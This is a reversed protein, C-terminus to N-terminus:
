NIKLKLLKVNTISRMREQFALEGLSASNNRAWTISMLTKRISTASWPLAEMKEGSKFNCASNVM